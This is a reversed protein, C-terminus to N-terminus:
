RELGGRGMLLNDAGNAHDAEVWVNAGDAHVWNGFQAYNPEGLLCLTVTAALEQSPRWVGTSVSQHDARTRM